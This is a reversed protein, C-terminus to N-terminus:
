DGGAGEIRDITEQAHAVDPDSPALRIFTRLHTVALPARAPERAMLMGLNLHTLPLDPDAALAHRFRVEATDREGRGLAIVGLANLAQTADPNVELVKRLEHEADGTRGQRSYALALGERATISRPAFDLLEHFTRIAGDLDGGALRERATAEAYRAYLRRITPTLSFATRDARLLAPHPMRIQLTEFRPVAGAPATAGASPDTLEFVLGRRRYALRGEARAEIMLTTFARGALARPPTTYLAEMRRWRGERWDGEIADFGYPQDLVKGSMDVIEVDPRVGRVRTHYAFPGVLTETYLFLAGRSPVCALVNGVFDDVFTFDSRDCRARNALAASLAVALLVITLGHGRRRAGRALPAIAAGSALVFLWYPLILYNEVDLIAYVLAFTLMLVIPLGVLLFRERDGRALAVLGLASLFVIGITLPGSAGLAVDGFLRLTSRVGEGGESLLESGSARGLAHYFFDGASEIRAYDIVPSAASRIPLVVFASFPLLFLAFAFLLARPPIAGARLRSGVLIAVGPLLMVALPQHSVALGGTYAAIWLDRAEGRARWRDAREIALLSLCLGLAYVEAVVAQSWTIWSLGAIVSLAASAPGSVGFRCLLRALIGGALACPVVSLLTVRVAEGFLPISGLVRGMLVYLPYGPQHPIGVTLAATIMEPTDGGVLGRVMSLAYVVFLLLASALPALLEKRVLSRHM